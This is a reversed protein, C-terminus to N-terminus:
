NMKAPLARGTELLTKLGSIVAPWGFSVSQLMEQDDGFEEHTVTLRVSKDLAELLYTVRSHKAENGEDVPRAWSVVLKRPPDSELVKGVVHVTDTEGKLVHQWKSGVSWDSVNEHNFWYRRTMEPDSLASWVKEPTSEIYSVYVFKPKDM